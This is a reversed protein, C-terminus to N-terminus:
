VSEGIGRQGIAREDIAREDIARAAIADASLLPQAAQSRPANTALGLADHPVRPDLKDWYESHGLSQPLQQILAGGSLWQEHGLAVPMIGEEDERLTEGAPFACALVMDRSSFLSIVKEGTTEHLLGNRLEDGSKEIRWTPVAAAMHLVRRVTIDPASAISSMLQLCLRNGMSHCVLDLTVGGPSYKAVDRLIGALLKATDDAVPLAMPYFLPRLLGWKGDGPWFVEVVTAGFAWDVGPPHVLTDQANRFNRYAEQAEAQTDNYGHILLILHRAGRLATSDILAQVADLGGGETSDRFNLEVIKPGSV